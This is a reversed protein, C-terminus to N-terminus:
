SDTTRLDYLRGVDAQEFVVSYRDVLHREFGPYLDLWALCPHPVLLFEGGEVRLQELWAIAEDDGAPMGSDLPYSAVSVTGSSGNGTSWSIETTGHTGKPSAPNPDALLFRRRDPNEGHEKAEDVVAPGPSARDAVVTLADIEEDMGDLALRFEYGFGPAIWDAVRSGQPGRGFVEWLRPSPPPLLLLDRPMGVPRLAPELWVVVSDAPAHEELAEDLAPRAPPRTLGKEICARRVARRWQAEALQRHRGLEERIVSEQRPMLELMREFFVVVREHQTERALGSWLGDPHVRYVGFDEDIYIIPGQEGILLYLAWDGFEIDIFGQPLEPLFTRRLLPSCGPVFCGAWLRRPDITRRAGHGDGRGRDLTAELWGLSRVRAGDGFGETFRGEWVYSMGETVVTVDHFCLVYEPRAAMVDVQAQLKAPSTWYDDGDLTAVYESGCTAWVEAFLRNSNENTPALALRVKDPHQAALEQVLARTGDTSCDEIVVVELPFSTEQELVSTLAQEVYREHNYATVIVTVLPTESGSV